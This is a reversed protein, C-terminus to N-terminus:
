SSGHALDKAMRVFEVFMPAPAEPRSKLEPHSQTAIGLANKWEIFEVLKGDPTTGSITLGMGELGDRYSNNFEYRHRHRESIREAGYASRIRTGSKLLAPWAGLRMTGGKDSIGKQEEMIHIVKNATNPAFESSHADKLGAVNRAFEIAMLQMGLCIGLYPVNRERAYKIASIMGEIGRNGFGGPVLIGHSGALRKAIEAADIGELEESDLWEIEPHVGNAISAHHLAEKVSVYADHLKVYKGVVIIKVKRKGNGNGIEIISRRWNDIMKQDPTRAEIGLESILKDGFGMRVFELPASYINDLDHNDIIRDPGLNGFLAIKERAKSDLKKESRTVIFDPQIGLQMLSRLGLQTPKTKQEGVVGLEPVYTVAVFVVRNKMALERMAEIFYSNEIDGVTGGVEILLADLDNARRVEVLKRVIMDTLHPIIQVDSGLFEGRRERAVIESFLKGGTLSFSSNLSKNLFREYTGFDMDVESKDDLVFVEGHKLPNMTGCDYNLYGDFKLPMVNLGYFSLTKTISSSVIGKGIGSLLSGLVVIYRDPMPILLKATSVRFLKGVKTNIKQPTAM